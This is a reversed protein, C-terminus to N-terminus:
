KYVLYEEPSMAQDLQTYAPPAARSVRRRVHVLLLGILCAVAVGVAVLAAVVLGSM